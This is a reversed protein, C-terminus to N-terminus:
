IKLFTFKKKCIEIKCYKNSKNKTKHSEQRIRLIQGSGVLFTWIRGSGCCQSLLLCHRHDVTFFKCTTPTDAPRAAQDGQGALLLLLAEVWGAVPGSVGAVCVFSVDPWRQYYLFSAPLNTWLLGTNHIWICKIQNKAWNPDPDLNINDVTNHIWICYM